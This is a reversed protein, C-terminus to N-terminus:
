SPKHLDGYKLSTRVIMVAFMYNDLEVALLIITCGTFRGKLNNSATKLKEFNSLQTPPNRNYRKWYNGKKKVFQLAMKLDKNHKIECRM